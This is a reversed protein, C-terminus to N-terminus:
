DPSPWTPRVIADAVRLAERVVGVNHARIIAAGHAVALVAAAATAVDRQAADTQGTITGLFRKRSPGILVPSGSRGFRGANRIISVNHEVTKGFGIGPDVVIADPRVGAAVLTRRRDDLYATIEEVVDGYSPQDQMTRPEGLMHMVVLGAQSSAALAVMAPDRFGSVDNVIEAGAGLAASAVEPKMTDISVVAGRDALAEVVPMVRALEDEASVPEARPRTSEGGVDVIEAGQDILRLAHNIAAEASTLTGGDSFSDPTVNVVGMLLTRDLHLQRSRLFWRAVPTTGAADTM